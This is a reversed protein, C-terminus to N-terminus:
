TESEAGKGNPPKYRPLRFSARVGNLTDDSKSNQTSLLSDDVRKYSHCLVQQGSQLFIEEFEQLQVTTSFNASRNFRSRFLEFTSNEGQPKCEDKNLTGAEAELHWNNDQNECYRLESSEIDNSNRSSAIAYDRKRKDLKGRKMRTKWKNKQLKENSTESLAIPELPPLRCLTSWCGNPHLFAKTSQYSTTAGIYQQTNQSNSSGIPPLVPAAMTLPTICERPSTVVNKKNPSRNGEPTARPRPSSPNRNASKPPIEHVPFARADTSSYVVRAATLDDVASNSSMCLQPSISRAKLNSEEATRILTEQKRAAQEDRENFAQFIHTFFM